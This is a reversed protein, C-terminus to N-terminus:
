FAYGIGVAGIPYLDGSTGIVPTFGIRWAFGGDVPVKRYMFTIFGIAHGPKEDTYYFLAVKRTLFSVGAGIEFTKESNPKGLVYNLGIPISYYTRTVRDYYGWQNLKTEEFNGYGFGAGLRYGLGLRETSSFRADFHVSMILGPGGFESYFLKNPVGSEQALLSSNFTLSLVAIVVSLSLSRKMIIGYGIDENIQTKLVSRIGEIPVDENQSVVVSKAKITASPTGYETAPTIWDCSFGLWALLKTIRFYTKSILM